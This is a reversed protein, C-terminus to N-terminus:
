RFLKKCDADSSERTCRVITAEARNNEPPDRFGGGVSWALKIEEGGFQSWARTDTYAVGVVIQSSSNPALASFTCRLFGTFTGPAASTCVFGSPISAVVSEDRSDGSVSLEFSGSAPLSGRNGVTIGMRMVSASTYCRGGPCDGSERNVYLDTRDQMGTLHLPPYGSTITLVNGDFAIGLSGGVGKTPRGGSDRAMLHGVYKGPAFSWICLSTLPKGDIGMVVALASSTKVRLEGIWKNPVSPTLTLTIEESPTSRSGIWTGALDASPGGGDATFCDTQRPVGQPSGAQGALTSSPTGGASPPARALRYDADLQDYRAKAEREEATRAQAHLPRVQLAIAFVTLTLLAARILTARRSMEQRM